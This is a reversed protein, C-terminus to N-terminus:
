PEGSVKSLHMTTTAIQEPIPAVFEIELAKVSKLQYVLYCRQSIYVADHCM